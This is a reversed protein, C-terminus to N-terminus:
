RYVLVGFLVSRGAGDFGIVCSIGVGSGCVFGIVMWFCCSLFLLCSCCVIHSISPYTFHRSVFCAQCHTFFSRLFFVGYLFRVLCRARTRLSSLFCSGRHAISRWYQPSIYELKARRIICRPIRSLSGMCMALM